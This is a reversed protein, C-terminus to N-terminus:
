VSLVYIPSVGVLTSQRTILTFNLIGEITFHTVQVGKRLKKLCTELVHKMILGHGDNNDTWYTYIYIVSIILVQEVQWAPNMWTFARSLICMHLCACVHAVYVFATEIFWNCAPWLGTRAQNLLTCIYEPYCVHHRGM